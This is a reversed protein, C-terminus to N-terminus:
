GEVPPRRRSAQNMIIGWLNAEKLRGEKMVLVQDGLREAQAPEHTILLITAQGGAKM